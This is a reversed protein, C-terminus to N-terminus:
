QHEDDKSKGWKVRDWIREHGYYAFSTYINSIIVFGLAIDYKHTFLFVVGFDLIIILIRYTLTKVLSRKWLDKFHRGSAMLHNKILPKIFRDEREVKILAYNIL